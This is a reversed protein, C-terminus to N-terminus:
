RGTKSRSALLPSPPPPLFFFRHIFAHAATIHNPLRSILNFNFTFAFDFLCAHSPNQTPTSQPHTRKAKERSWSERERAGRRREKGEKLGPLPIM